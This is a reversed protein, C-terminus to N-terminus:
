SENWALAQNFFLVKPHHEAEPTCLPSIYTDQVTDGKLIDVEYPMGLVHCHVYVCFSEAVDEHVSSSGYLSPFSTQSLQEFVTPIQNNPLKDEVTSNYYYFSLTRLAPAVEDFISTSRDKWSIQLLPYSKVSNEDSFWDIGWEKGVQFVHGLEHTIINSVAAITTDEAQENTVRYRLRYDGDQKFATEARYKLIGSLTYDFLFADVLMFFRYEGDPEGSVMISETLASSGLNAVFYFAVTLKEAEAKITPHLQRIAETAIAMQAEDLQAPVISEDGTDLHVYELVVEPIPQIRQELTKTEWDGYLTLDTRAPHSLYYPTSSCGIMVGGLGM